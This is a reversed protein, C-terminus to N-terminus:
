AYGVFFSTLSLVCILAFIAFKCTMPDGGQPASM